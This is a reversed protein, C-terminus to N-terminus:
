FRGSDKADFAALEIAHHLFVANRLALRYAPPRLFIAGSWDGLVGLAASAEQGANSALMRTIQGASDQLFEPWGAAVGEKGVKAQQHFGAVTTAVQNVEATTLMM